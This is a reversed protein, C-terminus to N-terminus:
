GILDLVHSCSIGLTDRRSEVLRRDEDQRGPGFPQAPHHDLRERAPATDHRRAGAPHEVEDLVATFPQKDRPRVLVREDFASSRTSPSRSSAARSPSPLAPANDPSPSSRRVLEGTGQAPEGVPCDGAPRSALQSEDEDGLGEIGVMGDEGLRKVEDAARESRTSSTATSQACTPRCSSGAFTRTCVKPVRRRYERPTRKRRASAASSRRAGRGVCHEGMHDREKEQKSRRERFLARTGKEEPVLM